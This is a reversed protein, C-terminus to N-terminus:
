TDMIRMDFEFEQETGTPLFGKSFLNTWFVDVGSNAAASPFCNDLSISTDLFVGDETQQSLCELGFVQQQAIPREGHVESPTEEKEKSSDQVQLNMLPKIIENMENQGMALRWYSEVCRSHLRKLVAHFTTPIFFRGEDSSLKLKELVLRMLDLASIQKAESMNAGDTTPRNFVELKIIMVVAYMMRTFVIVPVQQLIKPSFQLFLQILNRAVNLCEIRADVYQPLDPAFTNTSLFTHIAYPPRFDRFEHNDYLGPEYLNLLIVHYHIELTLTMVEEPLNQRWDKVRELCGQLIFRTRPDSHNFRSSNEDSGVRAIALSEEALRQLRIWAALRRDGLHTSAPSDLINICEQVWPGYYLTSPRRFSMAIGSCLFYCASFARVTELYEKTHLVEPNSSPIQYREDNSSRLDIVMTAAINIFQGFNLHQFKDPPHSWTVLVLAAQILDISKRGYIMAEEMVYREADRFLPTWLDPRFSSSSTALMAQFLAPRDQQLARWSLPADPQILPYHPLLDTFFKTYLEEALSEEIIGRSVPDGKVPSESTTEYSTSHSPSTTSIRGLSPFSDQTSAPTISAESTPPICLDRQRGTAVAWQVEELKQELEHIRTENRRRRKRTAPANFVCEIDLKRCRNCKELLPQSNSLDSICRIKRKRCGECTRNLRTEVTGESTSM